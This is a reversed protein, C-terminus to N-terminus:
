RREGEKKPAKVPEMSKRLFATLAAQFEPTGGRATKYVVIM